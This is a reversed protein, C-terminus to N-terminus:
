REQEGMLGLKAEYVLRGHKPDKIAIESESPVEIVLERPINGMPKAGKDRGKPKITVQKDGDEGWDFEIRHLTQLGTGKRHITLWWWGGERQMFAYGDSEFKSAAKSMCDAKKKPDDKASKDCKKEAEQYPESANFNIMFLVDPRSLIDKATRAPAKPEEAKEGAEESKKSDGEAKDADSEAKAPAEPKAEAAEGEPEKPEPASGGCAVLFTTLVFPVSYRRLLMPFAYWPAQPGHPRAEPTFIEQEM